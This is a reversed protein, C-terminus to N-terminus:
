GGHERFFTVNRIWLTGANLIGGGLGAAKGNRISLNSVRLSAGSAVDIVRFALARRSERRIVTNGGGVM